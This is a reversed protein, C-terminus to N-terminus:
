QVVVATCRGQASCSLQVTGAGSTTVSKHLAVEGMFGPALILCDVPSSQGGAGESCSVTAVGTVQATAPHQGSQDFSASISSSTTAAVKQACGLLCTIIVAGLVSLHITGGVTAAGSEGTKM